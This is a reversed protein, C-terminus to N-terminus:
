RRHKNHMRWVHSIVNMVVEPRQGAVLATGHGPLPKENDVTLFGTPRRYLSGHGFKCFDTAVYRFSLFQPRRILLQHLTPLEIAQPLVSTPRLGKHHWRSAQPQPPPLHQRRPRRSTLPHRMKSPMIVLMARRQHHLVIVLRLQNQQPKNVAGQLHRCLLRFPM